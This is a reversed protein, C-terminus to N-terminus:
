YDPRLRLTQTMERQADNLNRSAFFARGLNYRYNAEQPKLRVIDQLDQLAQALRQPDGSEIRLVARMNVSDDDKPNDKLLSEILAEAESRKGLAVDMLVMRKTYVPKQKADARQAGTQYYQLAREFDSKSAFFEGIRLPADPFKKPDDLLRQLTATVDG